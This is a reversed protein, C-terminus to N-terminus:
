KSKCSYIERISLDSAQALPCFMPRTKLELHPRTQGHQAIVCMVYAALYLFLSTELIFGFKNSFIM